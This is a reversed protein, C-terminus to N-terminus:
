ATIPYNRKMVDKVSLFGLVVCAVPHAPTKIVHKLAQIAFHGQFGNLMPNLMAGARNGRKRKKTSDTSAMALPEDFSQLYEVTKEIPLLEDPGLHSALSSDDKDGADMMQDDLLKQPRCLATQESHNRACLMEYAMWCDAPEVGKLSNYSGFEVLAQANEASPCMHIPMDGNLDRNLRCTSDHAVLRNVAKLNYLVAVHLPCEGAATRAHVNAKNDLLVDVLRAHGAQCALHLPTQGEKKRANVIAHNRILILAVKVNQRDFCVSHLPTSNCDDRANISAKNEILLNVVQFNGHLAALHLPSSGNEDTANVNAGHAILVQAVKPSGYRCAAHLATYQYNDVEHVCAGKAILARALYQCKCLHLPGKGTVEKANICAGQEVLFLAIHFCSAELALLLPTQEKCGSAGEIDAGHELLLKVVEKCLYFHCTKQLASHRMHLADVRAGGQLLVRVLEPQKTACAAHLMPEGGECEANPDANHDLLLKVMEISGSRIACLLPPMARTLGEHVNAGQLILSKMAEIDGNLAALHIEEREGRGEEWDDM